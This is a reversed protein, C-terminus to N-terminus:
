LLRKHKGSPTPNAASASAGANRPGDEDRSSTEVAARKGRAGDGRSARGNGQGKGVPIEDGDWAEVRAGHAPSAAPARPTRLALIAASSRVVAETAAGATEPARAFGNAVVVTAAGTGAPAPTPMPAAQSTDLATDASINPAPAPAAASAQNSSRDRVCALAATTGGESAPAAASTIAPATWWRRRGQGQGAAAAAGTGAPASTPTPAVPAPSTDLATDASTNPAPAPAAASAQDSSRDRVCALAATASGESCHTAASADAPAAAPAVAPAAAPTAAIGSPTGTAIGSAAAPVSRRPDSHLPDTHLAARALGFRLEACDACEFNDVLAPLDAATDDSNEDGGAGHGGDVLSPKRLQPAARDDGSANGSADGSAGGSAGEEEMCDTQAHFWKSCLSCRLLEGSYRDCRGCRRAYSVGGVPRNADVTGSADRGAARAGGPQARADNEEEEAEDDDPREQARVSPKTEVPSADADLQLSVAVTHDYVIFSRDSGRLLDLTQTAREGSDLRQRRWFALAIPGVDSQTLLLVPPRPRSRRGIGAATRLREALATGARKLANVIRTGHGHGCVGPRQAVAILLVELVLEDVDSSGAPLHGDSDRAISYARYTCGGLLLSGSCLGLTGNHRHRYIVNHLHSRGRLAPLLEDCLSKYQALWPQRVSGSSPSWHVFRLSHDQAANAESCASSVAADVTPGDIAAM